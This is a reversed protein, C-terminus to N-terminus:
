HHHHEHPPEETPNCPACWTRTLSDLPGAEGADRWAPPLSWYRRGVAGTAAGVRQVEGLIGARRAAREVEAAPVPGAALLQQLLAAARRRTM